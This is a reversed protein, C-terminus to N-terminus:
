LYSVWARNSNRAKFGAFWQCAPYLLVVVLMWVLYVAWLPSNSPLRQNGFATPMEFLNRADGFRYLAVAVGVLHALYLHLLYYFLFRPDRVALPRLPIVETTAYGFPYPFNTTLARKGNEFSPTIKAILM